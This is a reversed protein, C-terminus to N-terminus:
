WQVPVGVRSVHVKALEVTIKAEVAAEDVHKASITQGENVASATFHLGPVGTLAPIGVAAIVARM